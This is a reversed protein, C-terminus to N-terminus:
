SLNQYLGHPCTLNSQLAKFSHTVTMRGTMPRLDLEGQAIQAMSETFIAFEVLFRNVYSLLQRMENDPLNEPVPIPPPVKGTRLQHFTATIKDILQEEVEIM